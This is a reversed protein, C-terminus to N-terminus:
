YVLLMLRMSFLKRFRAGDEDESVFHPHAVKIAVERNSFPDHASYVTGMSGKGVQEHIEYKGIIQPENTITHFTSNYSVTTTSEENM